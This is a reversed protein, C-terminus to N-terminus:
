LDNRLIRGVWSFDLGIAEGRVRNKQKTFTLSVFTASDLDQDSCALMDIRANGVFFIPRERSPVPLLRAKPERHVRRASVPLLLNPLDHRRYNSPLDVRIKRRQRRPTTSASSCGSLFLSGANVKPEALKRPSSHSSGTDSLRVKNSTWIPPSSPSSAANGTASSSVAM